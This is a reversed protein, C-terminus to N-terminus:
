RGQFRPRRKELFARVGERYDESEFCARVAAATAVRDRSAEDRAFEAVVRKVAALTLPANEAIVQASSRVEQELSAKPFVGNVLGMRLAHPADLLRATFLIEKACSPGVLDVLIRIGAEGYGLGLRAAPIAFRADESAFRLDATLALALGGGVCFGHVMAIVPKSLSFLASFAADTLTEYGRAAAGGTRIREFESIDAGSVFALEGAGRLVVVRVAPDAGLEAAAQPLAGWMQESIANRREPHDFVIWGLAGERRVEIRGGM